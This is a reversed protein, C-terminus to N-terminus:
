GPRTATAVLEANVRTLADGTMLRDSLDLQRLVEDYGARCREVNVRHRTTRDVCEGAEYRGDPSALFALDDTVFTGQPEYYRFAVHRGDTNLLDRGLTLVSDRPIGLLNLLTPYADIMGAAGHRVGGHQGGPLRILLPVRRLELQRLRDASGTVGTFTNLDVEDWGTGWHDGYIVVVSNDLLGTRRLNDLFVGLERDAYAQSQLYNGFVTGFGGARLDLPRDAQPIEYPHHGSLTVLHAMFPQPLRQLRPLTQQYFSRDSLGLGMTEDLQYDGESTFRGFGQAPYMRARNWFEPKYAHFAELSRYGHARLAEPLSTQTAGAGTLFASSAELPYLSNLTLMEADSTNGQAIQSFYDDFYMAEGRSLRNLTPTVEQGGVKRGVVFGQMAEMQVVIVNRGGAVAALEHGTNHERLHAELAVQRASVDSDGAGFQSQVADVAHYALPGVARVLAKNAYLNAVAGPTRTEVRVIQAGVVLAAVCTATVALSGTWARRTSREPPSRLRRVVVILAALVLLDALYWADRASVLAQVSDGVGAVQGSQALVPLPMVRGYYRFFMADAVLAVTVLLDVALLVLLRPWLRLCMTWGLLAVVLGGTTVSLVDLRSVGDTRYALLASKAAIVGAFILLSTQNLLAPRQRAPRQHQPQHRSPRVPAHESVTTV